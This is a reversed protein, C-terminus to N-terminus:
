NALIGITKLDPPPPLARIYAFIDAVDQDSLVAEVYPPMEDAPRRLQNRFAAFPIPQQAIRLGAARGGGGQGVTGHCYSCGDALWLSKGKAADGRPAEQAQAACAGWAFAALAFVRGVRTMTM